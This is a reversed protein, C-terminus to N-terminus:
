KQDEPVEPEIWEKPCDVFYDGSLPVWYLWTQGTWLCLYGSDDHTCERGEDAEGLRPLKRFRPPRPCIESM